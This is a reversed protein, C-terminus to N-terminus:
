SYRGLQQLMLYNSVALLAFMIAAFQEDFSFLAIAVVIGVGISLMIANRLGNYKDRLMFLERSVQGGDLPLVPVLNIVGWFINIFLMYSVLKTVADPWSSAPMFRWPIFSPLPEVWFKGGGVFIMMIVVGALLFGAGPGALSILIQSWADRRSRRTGFSYSEEPIALGGMHYLVIRPSYGYRRMAFAHGLEHILISLFVVAIYILVPMPYKGGESVNFGLLFSVLWFGPHIRTPVGFLQFHLDFNTRPPELSFM